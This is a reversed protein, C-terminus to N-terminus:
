GLLGGFLNQLPNTAGATNAVSASSIGAGSLGNLGGLLGGVLDGVVPLDGLVPISTGATSASADAGGLLGGVVPLDNIAPLSGGGLLGGLVPVDNLGPLGADAAGGLSGTFAGALTNVLDGIVPIDGLVPVGAAASSGGLTGLSDLLPLGGNAGAGALLGGAGGEILQGLIPLDGLVPINIGGAGTAQVPEAGLLNSIANTLGTPDVQAAPALAQGITSLATDLPSLVFDQLAQTLPTVATGLPSDATGVKAGEVVDNLIGVLGNPGAGTGAASVGGVVGSLLDAVGVPDQAAVQELPGAVTNMVGALVNTAQGLPALPSDALIPAVQGLAGELGLANNPVAAGLAGGNLGGNILDGLIPISDIGPLGGAAGGTQSGTADAGLLNTLLKTIGTPDASTVPNLASAVTELANDLPSLLGNQIAATAPGTVIALPSNATGQQIGDVVENLVGVLGNPETGANPNSAGGLIGSIIGTVGTPDKAAIQDVVNAIQDVVPKIVDTVQGVPALPTGEVIGKVQDLVGEVGNTTGPKNEEDPNNAGSGGGNGGALGGLVAGGGLLAALGGMGGLGATAVGAGLLGAMESTEGEILEASVVGDETPTLVLESSNPSTIETIPAGTAGVGMKFGASAAAPLTLLTAAQGASQAPVMIDVPSTGKNVLTDGELIPDGQGLVREEGDRMVHVDTSFTTLNGLSQTQTTQM